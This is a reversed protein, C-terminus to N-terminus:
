YKEVFSCVQEASLAAVRHGERSASQHTQLFDEPPEPNLPVASSAEVLSGAVVSHEDLFIWLFYVGSMGSLVPM